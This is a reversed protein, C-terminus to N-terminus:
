ETPTLVEVKGPEPRIPGGAERRRQGRHLYYVYEPTAEFDEAIRRLEPWTGSTKIARARIKRVEKNTFTRRGKNVNQFKRRPTGPEIGDPMPVSRRELGRCLKSCYAVGIEKSAALEELPEDTYYFRRRLSMVESDLLRKPAPM